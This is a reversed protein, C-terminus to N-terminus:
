DKRRIWYDPPAARVLAHGTLRCWSPLDEPAGPDLARVRILAGPALSSLRRRLDLVLEGCGLDGADWEADATDVSSSSSARSTTEPTATGAPTAAPCAASRGGAAAERAGCLGWGRRLCEKSHVYALLSDRVAAPTRGLEQALCRLCLPEDEFGAALAFLVEHACVPAACAPCAAADHRDLVAVVHAIRRSLTSPDDDAFVGRDRANVMM